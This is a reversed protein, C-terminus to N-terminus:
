PTVMLLAAIFATPDLEIKDLTERWECGNKMKIVALSNFSVTHQTSNTDILRVQEVQPLVRDNWARREGSALSRTALWVSFIGSDLQPIVAQTAYMFWEHEDRRQEAQDVDIYLEVQYRNTDDVGPFVDITIRYAMRSPDNVIRTVCKVDTDRLFAQSYRHHIYRDIMHRVEMGMQEESNVARM